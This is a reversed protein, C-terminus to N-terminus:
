EENLRIWIGVQVDEFVDCSINYVAYNMSRM